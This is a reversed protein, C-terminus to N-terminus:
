SAFTMPYSTLSIMCNSSGPGPGTNVYEGRTTSIRHTGSSSWARNSWFNSKKFFAMIGYPLCPIIALYTQPSPPPPDEQANQGYM